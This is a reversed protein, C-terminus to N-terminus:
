KRLIIEERLTFELATGAPVKADRGSAGAWILGGGAGSAAGILAGKKGGVAGGIAAGGAAGLLAKGGTGLGSSDQSERRAVERATDSKVDYKRGKVTVTHLRFALEDTDERMRVLRIEAPDGRRMMMHDDVYVDEDIRAPFVDGPRSNGISIQTDTRVFIETGDPVVRSAGFVDGCPLLLACGLLALVCQALGRKM